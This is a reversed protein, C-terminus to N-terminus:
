VEDCEIFKCVDEISNQSYYNQYNEIVEPTAIHPWIWSFLIIAVIAMIVMVFIDKVLKKFTKNFIMDKENDPLMQWKEFREIKDGLLPISFVVTVGLLLYIFESLQKAVMSGPTYLDIFAATITTGCAVILVTLVVSRCLMLSKKSLLLGKIGEECM